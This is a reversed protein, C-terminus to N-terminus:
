SVLRRRAQGRPSLNMTCHLLPRCRLRSGEEGAPPSLHGLHGIEAGVEGLLQEPVEAAAPLPEAEVGGGGRRPSSTLKKRGRRGLRRHESELKLQCQATRTRKGKGRLVFTLPVTGMMENKSHKNGGLYIQMQEQSSYFSSLLNLYYYIQSTVCISIRISLFWRLNLLWM